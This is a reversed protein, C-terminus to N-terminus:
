RARVGAGRVALDAEPVLEIKIDAGKLYKDFFKKILKAAEPKGFATCM